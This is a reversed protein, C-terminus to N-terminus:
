WCPPFIAAFHGHDLPKSLFHDVEGKADRTDLASCAGQSMAILQVAPGERGRLMRVFGRWDFDPLDISFLAFLPSTRLLCARAGADDVAFDVRYGNSQLMVVTVELFDVSDDVILVPGGVPNPM